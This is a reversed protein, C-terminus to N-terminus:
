KNKQRNSGYRWNNSMCSLALSNWTQVLWVPKGPGRWRLNEVVSHESRRGSTHDASSSIEGVCKQSCKLPSCAKLKLLHQFCVLNKINNQCPFNGKIIVKWFDVEANSSYYLQKASITIWVHVKSLNMRRLLFNVSSFTWQCINANLRKLGWISLKVLTKLSPNRSLSIGPQESMNLWQCKFSRHMIVKTKMFLAFQDSPQDRRDHRGFFVFCFVGYLPTIINFCM